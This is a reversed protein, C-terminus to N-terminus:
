FSEIEKFGSLNRIVADEAKNRVAQGSLGERSALASQRHLLPSLYLNLRDGPNKQDAFIREPDELLFSIQLSSKLPCIIPFNLIETTQSKTSIRFKPLSKSLKSPLASM